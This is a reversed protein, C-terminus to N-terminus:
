RRDKGVLDQPAGAALVEGDRKAQKRRRRALMQEGEVPERAERIVQAVLERAVAEGREAGELLVELAGEGALGLV